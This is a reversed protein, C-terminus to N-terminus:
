MVALTTQKVPTVRATSKVPVPDPVTVLAGGPRLQALLQLAANADPVVIVSVAAGPEPEANPPHVPQSAVDPVAHVTFLRVM